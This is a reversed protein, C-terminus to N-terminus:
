SSMGTMMVSSSCAWKKEVLPVMGHSAVRCCDNRASPWARTDYCSNLYLWLSYVKTEYTM